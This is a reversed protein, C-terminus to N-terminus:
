KGDEIGYRKYFNETKLIKISGTILERYEIFAIGHVGSLLHIIEAKRKDYNM